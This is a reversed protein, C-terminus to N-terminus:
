SVFGTGDAEQLHQTGGSIEDTELISLTPPSYPLKKVQADGIADDHQHAPTSTINKWMVM